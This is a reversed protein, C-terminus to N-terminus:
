DKYIAHPTSGPGADGATQPRLMVVNFALHEGHANFATKLDCGLAYIEVREGVRTSVDRSKLPRYM